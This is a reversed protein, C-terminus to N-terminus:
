NKVIKLNNAPIGKGFVRISYVGTPLISLDVNLDYTLPAYSYSCVISGNMDVVDVLVKGAPAAPLMIHTNSTAPNPYMLLGGANNGLTYIGTTSYARPMAVDKVPIGYGVSGNPTPTSSTGKHYGTLMDSM